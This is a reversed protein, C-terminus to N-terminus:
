ALLKDLVRGHVDTLSVDRGGFQFTLKKHDIGLQHLITAHIDHIEVADHVVSNGFEDTAGYAAGAKFGGGALFISYGNVHHDRGVSDTIKPTHPTRGMEGAWLVITQDLLGRQKLDAILAAVAQDMIRANITHNKQLLSHQDWPSNNNDGIEPFTVEVFRVGAEVLRRARLCQLAYHRQLDDAVDLGYLRRTSETEGTVDALAPVMSQMRFATEYNQIAAEIGDAAVDRAFGADQAALLRLKRRQVAAADSPTINDVPVGKARLMTAQHTAPLFSSSFNELGGSLLRGVAQPGDLSVTFDGCRVAGDRLGVGDVSWGAPVGHRFDAVLQYERANREARERGTRDYQEALARWQAALSAANHTARALQVWPHLTDDVPPNAQFTLAKTWAELRAADHDPPPNVRDRQAAWGGHMAIAPAWGGATPWASQIAHAMALRRDALRSQAANLHAAFHRADNLWTAAVAARIPPKLKRLQALLERNREPTDLTNTVWRSSMFVGALAYYDRQSVADFKHDHCRACGVTTAQFTKSFSDIMGDLMEQHVGNFDASDGHRKEGLQFFMPGIRSENIQDIANVRPDPLLDGAIQERVLQDFPVDQNFARVLYDRYRWAEKAPIDWEYGHTDGYRVVDMWHRAWREGFHPSALLRDVLRTYAHPDRDAVFEAVQQPTPPLGTLVFSLRRILVTRDARPAPTLDVAELNARVFQDVANASWDRNQVDPVPQHAVPQLSWWRGQWPPDAAQARVPPPGMVVAIALVLSLPM